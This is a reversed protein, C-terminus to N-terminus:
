LWPSPRSGCLPCPLGRAPFSAWGVAWGVPRTCLLGTFRRKMLVLLAPGLGRSPVSGTPREELAPAASSCPRGRQRDSPLESYASRRASSRGVPALGYGAAAWGEVAEAGANVPFLFWRAPTVPTRMKAPTVRAGTFTEYQCRCACAQRINPRTM